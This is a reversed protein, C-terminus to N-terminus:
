PAGGQAPKPDGFEEEDDAKQIEDEEITDYANKFVRRPYPATDKSSRARSDNEEPVMLGHQTAALIELDRVAEDLAPPVRVEVIDGNRFLKAIKRADRKDTKVRENPKRETKSPSM